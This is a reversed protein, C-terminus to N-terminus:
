PNAKPTIKSGNLPLFSGTGANTVWLTSFQAVGTNSMNNGHRGSRHVAAKAVKQPSNVLTDSRPPGAM